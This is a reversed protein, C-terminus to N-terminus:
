RAEGVQGIRALPADKGKFGELNEDERSAPNLPTWIQLPIKL